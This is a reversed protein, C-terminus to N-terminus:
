KKSISLMQSIISYVYKTTDPDINKVNKLLMIIDGLSLSIDSTMKHEYVKFAEEIVIKFKKEDLKKGLMISNEQLSKSMSSLKSTVFSNDRVKWTNPYHESIAIARSSIVQYNNNFLLVGVYSGSPIINILKKSLIQYKHSNYENFRFGPGDFNVVESIKLFRIMTTEMASVMALNGGKSHGVVSINQDFFTINKKLYEIAKNQTYTPYEYAIRFNELWGIVSKDSGKFSIIKKGPIICSIAGFQTYNDITKVFNKIKMKQYRISGKVIKLVEKAKTAMYDPKLTSNLVDDCFEDFTKVKTFSNLAVYVIIACFLNDMMNWPYNKLDYDKYKKLYAYITDM